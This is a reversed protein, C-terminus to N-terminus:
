IDYFTRAIASVMETSAKERITERNKDANSQDNALVLARRIAIQVEAPTIEKVAVGSDSFWEDCCATATQVPIAGMAMAELLSTSIGDSESLGVYIKASALLDLVQSHSLAGKGNVSVKLGTASKLAMAKQNTTRNASFIVLEHGALEAHMDIIADLAVKARGVWGHYGKIAIIRRQSGPILKRTLADSSFGGANPIVPMFTGSFGLESALGLDRTCEASHYDSIKLLRQLKAKHKPYRQFWFIDSGWNTTILSLGNPKKAELARLAIYGANQLELAHVIEPGFGKIFKKALSGRFFNDVFKDAIWLPLGFLKGLSVIRYQAKFNNTLLAKLEPRIRRHPSSPFLLFEIDESKFQALWRASHISDLMCIVFIRKSM